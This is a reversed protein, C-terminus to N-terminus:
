FRLQLIDIQLVFSDVRILAVAVGHVVYQSLVANSHLKLPTITIVANWQLLSVHVISISCM